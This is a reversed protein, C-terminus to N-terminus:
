TKNPRTQLQEFYKTIHQGTLQTIHYINNSELWELFTASLNKCSYVTGGSFGLTDLWTVFGKHISQYNQNM